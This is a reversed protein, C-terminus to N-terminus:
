AEKLVADVLKELRIGAEGNEYMNPVAEYESYGHKRYFALAPVNDGRAEVKLRTVGAVRAVHELWQLLASGIGRRRADERVGFLQLHASEETYHMVGFAVMGGSELAVAVNTDPDSIARAVRRPDWRWNQNHEIEAMSELAIAEADKPVALRISLRENM